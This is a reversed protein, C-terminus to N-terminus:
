VIYLKNFSRAKRMLKKLGVHHRCKHEHVYEHKVDKVPPLPPTYTCDLSDTMPYFRRHHLKEFWIMDDLGQM